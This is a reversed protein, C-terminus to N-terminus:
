LPTTMKSWSCLIFEFSVFVVPPNFPLPPPIFSGIHLQTHNPPWIPFQTLVGPSVGLATFDKTVVSDPCGNLTGDFILLVRCCGISSAIPISVPGLCLTCLPLIGQSHVSETLMAKSNLSTVLILHFSLQV